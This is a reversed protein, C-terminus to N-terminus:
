IRRKSKEIKGPAIRTEPIAPPAPFSRSNSWEPRSFVILGQDYSEWLFWDCNWAPWFTPTVSDFVRRLGGSRSTVLM